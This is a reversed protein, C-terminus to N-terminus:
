RTRLGSINIAFNLIGVPHSLRAAIRAKRRWATLIAQLSLGARRPATMAPRFVEAAFRLNM